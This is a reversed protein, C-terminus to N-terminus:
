KKNMGTTSIQIFLERIVALELESNATLRAHEAQNRLLNRIEAELTGREGNLVDRELRLTELQAQLTTHDGNLVNLQDRFRDRQQVTLVHAQKISNLDDTLQQIRQQHANFQRNIADLEERMADREKGISDRDHRLEDNDKQLTDLQTSLQEFQTQLQARQQHINDETKQTTELTAIRALSEQLQIELSRVKMVLGECQLAHEETEQSSIVNLRDIEAQSRQLERQLIMVEDKEWNCPDNKNRRFGADELRQVLGDSISAPELSGFSENWLVLRKLIPLLAKVGSLVPEPDIDQLLLVGNMTPEVNSGLWELVVEDLTRQEKWEEKLLCLNYYRSTLDSILLTGDLRSDNYSYWRVKESLAGVPEQYIQLWTPLENGWADHMWEVWRNNPEVMLARSCKLGLKRLLPPNRAGILVGWDYDSLWHDYLADHIKALKNSVM